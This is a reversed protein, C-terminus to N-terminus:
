EIIRIDTFSFGKIFKRGLNVPQGNRIKDNIKEKDYVDFDLTKIKEDKEMAFYNDDKFTIKVKQKGNEEYFEKKYKM